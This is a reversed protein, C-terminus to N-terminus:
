KKAGLPLQVASRVTVRERERERGRERETQNNNKKSSVDALDPDLPKERGERYEFGDKPLACPVGSPRGGTRRAEFVRISSADAFFFGINQFSQLRSRRKSGFTPVQIHRTAHPRSISSSTATCAETGSSGGRGVPRGVVRLVMALARCSEASPM